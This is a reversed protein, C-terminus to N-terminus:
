IGTQIARLNSRYPLGPILGHFVTFDALQRTQQSIINHNDVSITTAHTPLLLDFGKKAL